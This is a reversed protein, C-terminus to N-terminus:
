NEQLTETIWQKISAVDPIKGQSKIKNNIILSPTKIVGHSIIENIDTIKQIEIEISSDKIAAKASAELKKCNPCGMGLVKIIM